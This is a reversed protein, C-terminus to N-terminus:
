NSLKLTNVAYPYGHLRFSMLNLSTDKIMIWKLYLLKENRM